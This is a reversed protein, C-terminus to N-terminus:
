EKRQATAKGCDTYDREFPLHLIDICIRDKHEWFVEDESVSVIDKCVANLLKNARAEGFGFENHLACCMLKFIRRTFDVQQREMEKQIAVKTEQEISKRM